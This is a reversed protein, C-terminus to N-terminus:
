CVWYPVIRETRKHSMIENSPISECTFFLLIIVSGNSNEIPTGQQQDQGSDMYPQMNNQQRRVESRHM